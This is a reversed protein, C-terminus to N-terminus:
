ECYEALKQRIEPTESFHRVYSKLVQCAEDCKDLEVFRNAILLFEEVEFRYTSDTDEILETMQSSALDGGSELVARGIVSAAPLMPPEYELGNIIAAIQRAITESYVPWIQVGEPNNYNSLIAIFQVGNGGTLRRINSNFSIIAGSLGVATLPGNEYPFDIPCGLYCSNMMRDMSDDQLLKGAYLAEYFLFLDGVTSYLCGSGLFLSMDVFINEPGALPKHVYGSARQELISSSVDVGTDQMGAPDLIGEQLIEQYSQGTVQELIVALLVYGFNSYRSQSGPSFLLDKDAFYGLLDQRTHPLRGLTMYDPMDKDDAVQLTFGGIDVTGGLHLHQFMDKFDIIGASHTLLHHITIRSGNREPYDPLYESVKGDLQLRGKEVQQMVLIATFQKTIFAIRFRTDLTNPIRWELNAWGFADEYIISGDQAVLITGSFQGNKDYFEMLRSIRETMTNDSPPATQKHDTAIVTAVAPTAQTTVIVTKTPVPKEGCGAIGLLISLLVFLNFARRKM